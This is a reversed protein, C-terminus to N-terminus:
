RKRPSTVWPQLRRQDAKQRCPHHAFVFLPMSWIAPQRKLNLRKIM